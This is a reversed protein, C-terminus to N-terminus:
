VQYKIDSEINYNGGYGVSLCIDAIVLKSARQYCKLVSM